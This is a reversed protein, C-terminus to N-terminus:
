EATPANPPPAIDSSNFPVGIEIKPKKKVPTQISPKAAPTAAADPVAADGTTQVKKASSKAIAAPKKPKRTKKVRAPPPAPVVDAESVATNISGDPARLGAVHVDVPDMLQFRPELATSLVTRDDSADTDDPDPSKKRMCIQQRMDIPEPVPSAGQFNALSPRLGSLSMMGFGLNLLRATLEARDKSNDAGLVVAALTHGNRQATAVINFGSSCIFGTKMGVTGHYRELLTNESRMVRDGFRIAPIGFLAHQEPFDKWLAATLVALDRATTQQGPGPLGNPNVYRTSSMGLRQAEANMMAVFGAESGGVTEGVAMAIDNASHVLMMKLANDLTIVTGVKFGM